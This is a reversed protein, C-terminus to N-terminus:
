PAFEGQFEGVGVVGAVDGPPPAGLGAHAVVQVPLGARARGQARRPQGQRSVRGAIGGALPLAIARPAAMDFFAAFFLSM